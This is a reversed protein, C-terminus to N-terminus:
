EETTEEEPEAAEEVAEATEEPAAAEEVAEATEEPATAEEVAEATEEPEAAEEVAEATEEPAAEEVAAEEPAEPVAEAAEERSPRELTAKISLSIKKNELDLETVKAQIEQGIELEDEPKEVHKYAIQSIHVLGDIGEELEVFAGFSVMRVVKGTVINGVAYKEAATNWPNANIDKLSLSIKGKEKNVDLVTVVVKDGKSLIDSVKKVRGWSMESIHILGDVGGLDVFAGFDVIRSVTGEVREGVKLNEFVQQRKEAIRKEVLERRGAVIRRKPRDTYEIINFDLEQGVLANLDEVYRNSVQSSPVFVREGDVSIMLGGKVVNKVTGMVVTKEEFATKLAELSKAKDCHKKSLEVIGDNDNVRKVYVEIEDGEKVVDAPNVDADSSFENRDIIGEYKFGLNVFVEGNERVSIVTGKVVEGSRLTLPSEDLMEEFTKNEESM